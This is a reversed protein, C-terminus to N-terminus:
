EGPRGVELCVETDGAPFPGPNSAGLPSALRLPGVHLGTWGEMARSEGLWSLRHGRKGKQPIPHRPLIGITQDSGPSM